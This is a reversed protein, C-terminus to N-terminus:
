FQPNKPIDFNTERGGGLRAIAEVAKKVSASPRSKSLAVVTALANV